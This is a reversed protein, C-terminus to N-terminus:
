INGDKQSFGIPVGDSGRTHPFAVIEIHADKQSFGIPVGDSGRTHPFAILIVMKRHSLLLCHFMVLKTEFHVSEDYM